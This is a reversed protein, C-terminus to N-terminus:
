VAWLRHQLEWHTVIFIIKNDESKNVTSPTAIICMILHSSVRESWKCSDRGAPRAGRASQGASCFVKPQRCKSHSYTPHTVMLHLCPMKTIFPHQFYLLSSTHPPSGTLGLCGRALLCTPHPSTFLRTVESATAKARKGDPCWRQRRWNPTVLPKGFYNYFM